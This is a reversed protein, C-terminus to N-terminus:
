DGLRRAEEEYISGKAAIRVLDALRADGAMKRCAKGKRELEAVFELAQEIIQAQANILEAAEHILAQEDASLPFTAAMRRLKEPLRDVM